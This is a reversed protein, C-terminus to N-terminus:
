DETEYNDLASKSIGTRQELQELTLGRGVRLDKLKEQITLAANM